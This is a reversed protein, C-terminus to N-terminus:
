SKRGSDDEPYKARITDFLYRTVDGDRRWRGCLRWYGERTPNELYDKIGALDEAAFTQKERRVAFDRAFREQISPDFYRFRSSLLEALSDHNTDAM